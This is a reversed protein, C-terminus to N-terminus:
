PLASMERLRAAPLVSHPARPMNDAGLNVLLIGVLRGGTFIAAGEMALTAECRIEALPNAPRRAGITAETLQLDSADKKFAVVLAPGAASDGDGDNATELPTVPEDVALLVADHRMMALYDEPALKGDALKAIPLSPHYIVRQVSRRGFRGELVLKIEDKQPDKIGTALVPLARTAFRKPEVATAIAIPKAPGKEAPSPIVYLVAAAASWNAPPKVASEATPTSTKKVSDNSTTSSAAAGQTSVVEASSSHTSEITKRDAAGHEKPQARPEPSGPAVMAARRGDASQLSRGVDRRNLFIVGIAVGVALVALLRYTSFHPVWQSKAAAASGETSGSKAAAFQMPFSASCHECQVADGPRPVGPPSVMRKCNPCITRVVAM